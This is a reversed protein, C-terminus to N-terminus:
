AQAKLSSDRHPHPPGSMCWGPRSLTLIQQPRITGRIGISAAENSVHLHLHCRQDRVTVHWWEFDNWWYTPRMDTCPREGACTHALARCASPPANPPDLPGLADAPRPRQFPESRSYPHLSPNNLKILILLVVLCARKRLCRPM